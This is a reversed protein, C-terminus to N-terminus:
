GRDHEESVAYIGRVNRFRGRYDLGCGFVYRDPVELGAFDVELGPVRRDHLKNVLVASTVEGAGQERCWELIAALTYGEDLIDDVVLVTRGKLPTLPRARWLLESGRTEGRYRTAHVYDLEIQVDLRPALMGAPILGGHLVPLYLVVEDRYRESIQAAMRDLAGEVADPGHLCDSQELVSQFHTEDARAM